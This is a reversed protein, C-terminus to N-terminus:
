IQEAATCATSYAFQLNYGGTDGDVDLAEGIVYVGPHARLEMTRFDIESLAVGGRTVMANAFSGTKAVAHRDGTLIAAARRLSPGSRETVARAFRHPVDFAEAIVTHLEAKRGATRAKLEALAQEYTVPAIYNIQIEDGPALRGSFNLVAPGSFGTHTFLLPGTVAAGRNARTPGAGDGAAALGEPFYEALAAPLAKLHKAKDHYFGVPFILKEIQAITLRDLDGPAFPGKAKRTSFLRKVAGTTCQDKTRASLITGVLVCFPDHTQAEILEIIPSNHATFEKKLAKDVSPIDKTTM